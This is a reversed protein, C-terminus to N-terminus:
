QLKALERTLHQIQAQTRESASVLNWLILTNVLLMIFLFGVLMDSQSQQAVLKPLFAHIKEMVANKNFKSVAKSDDRFTEKPQSVKHVVTDLLYTNFLQTYFKSVADIPDKWKDPLPYKGKTENVKGFVKIQTKGGLMKICIKVKSELGLDAIRSTTEVCVSHASYSIIEQNTSAAMSNPVILLYSDDFCCVLRNQITM